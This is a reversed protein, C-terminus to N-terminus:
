RYFEYKAIYDLVLSPVLQHLDDQPGPPVGDQPGPPVGVFPTSASLRRRIETSSAAVPANAIRHVRSRDLAAELQRPIQDVAAGPRELVALEALELLKRWERWTDLRVFSDRGLILFLRAEPQRRRFHRLTDVTFTVEDGLEFTSVFSDTEALLALEVMAYRALAPAGGRRSGDRQRSVSKHPPNATPLYIVRDLALAEKAERVPHIHGYHIPDFSGGYLGIKM